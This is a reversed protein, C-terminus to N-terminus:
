PLKEAFTKMVRVGKLSANADSKLNVVAVSILVVQILPFSGDLIDCALPPDGLCEQFLRQFYPLSQNYFM